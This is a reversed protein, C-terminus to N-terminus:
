QAQRARASISRGSRRHVPRYIILHVTVTIGALFATVALTPNEEFQTLVFEGAPGLSKLFTKISALGKTGTEKLLDFGIDGAVTFLKALLALM